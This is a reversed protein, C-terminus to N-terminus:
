DVLDFIPPITRSITIIKQRVAGVIFVAKHLHLAHGLEAISVSKKKGVVLMLCYYGSSGYAAIGYARGIITQLSAATRLRFSQVRYRSCFSDPIVYEVSCAQNWLLGFDNSLAIKFRRQEM